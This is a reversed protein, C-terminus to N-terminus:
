INFIEETNKKANTIIEEETLPMYKSLEQAVYVINQPINTRPLKRNRPTLYPSDTELLLRNKPIIEVANRLQDARREDCIWGTIGIYFGMDLLKKLTQRGSTYCHVVSKKCIEEHGEFCKIFDEDADRMHLFMPKNLKEALEIHKKFCELQINKESFMRNYDLGCEGVAIIKENTKIIEEIRIFDEEKANQVEHPHIGATGYVNHKKTFENVLENERASSGTLICEIGEKRADKIIKVEDKYSKTFLNIGIDYYKIM